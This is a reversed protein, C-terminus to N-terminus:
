QRTFYDYAFIEILMMLFINKIGTAGPPLYGPIVFVFWNDDIIENENRKLKKLCRFCYFDIKVVVKSLFYM